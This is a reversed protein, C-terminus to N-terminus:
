RVRNASISLIVWHTANAVVRAGQKRRDEIAGKEHKPCAILRRGEEELMRTTDSKALLQCVDDPNPFARVPSLGSVQPSTYEFITPEEPAVSQCASLTITTAAAALWLSFRAM